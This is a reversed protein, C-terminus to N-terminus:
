RRLWRYFLVCIAITAVIAVYDNLALLVTLLAYLMTAAGILGCFCFIVLWIFDWLEEGLKRAMGNDFATWLTKLKNRAM